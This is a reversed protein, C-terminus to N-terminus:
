LRVLPLAETKIGLRLPRRKGVLIYLERIKEHMKLIVIHKKEGKEGCM